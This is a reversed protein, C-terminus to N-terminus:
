FLEIDGEISSDVIKGEELLAEYNHIQDRGNNKAFYLAKDANDFITKAHDQYRIKAFGCSITVNKVMPFDFNRVISLFKTLISTAEEKTVPEFIIVFEEGGFRFILDNKRFSKQMLQSFMLLVEDGYVHGFKDNISKFHDIDLIALWTYDQDVVKKRRGKEDQYRNESHQHVMQRRLLTSLKQEYVRRNYLGTLVDRESLALLCYFNECVKILSLLYEMQNSFRQQSAIDVALVICNGVKIPIFMHNTNNATQYITLKNLKQHHINLYHETEKPWSDDWLYQKIGKDDSKVSLSTVIDFHPVPLEVHRFLSVFSNPVLEAISEILSSGFSDSDQCQTINLIMSM